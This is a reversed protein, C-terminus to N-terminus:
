LYCHNNQPHLSPLTARDPLIVTELNSCNMFAYEDIKEIITGSEFSITQVFNNGLFAQNLASVSSPIMVNKMNPSVWIMETKDSNYLIGDSYQFSENEEDITFDTIGCDAFAGTGIETINKSLELSNLNECGSFARASITSIGNPIEITKLKSCNYFMGTGIRDLQNPINANELNYCYSFIEDGMYTISNPLSICTLNECNAFAYSSVNTVSNPIEIHTLNSCGYFASGGITKVGDGIIVTKLERCHSFAGAGISDVTGSIYISEINSKLFARQGIQTMGEPIVLHKIGQIGYSITYQKDYITLPLEVVTKNGCYEFLQYSGSSYIFRFGDATDVIVVENDDLYQISGDSNTIKKANYAVQGYESSGITLMLGSHNEIFFLNNCGSFAYEGITTIANPITISKLNECSSFASTGIYTVGDPIIIHELSQCGSFASPQITNLTDPLSIGRLYIYGNLAGWEISTISEDLILHGSIGSGLSYQSLAHKVTGNYDYFMIKNTLEFKATVLYNDEIAGQYGFAAHYIATVSHPFNIQEIYRLNNFANQGIFSIGESITVTKLSEPVYTSNAEYAGAGFIYGFWTIDYDEFSAGIFPLTIEELQNCDAFAGIGIILQEKNAEPVTVSTLKAGRFAYNGIDILTDPLSMSEFSTYAFAYDYIGMVASSESFPFTELASCGYFAYDSIEVISDPLVINKLNICGYFAGEYIGKLNNGEAFTVTTLNKCMAFAYFDFSVVTKPVNLEVIAANYFCRYGFTLINSDPHFNIKTLKSNEFAGYGLIELSQPLTIEGTRGAPVAILKRGDKSYLLGDIAQYKPHTASVKFETLNQLGVLSYEGIYTLTDPITIESLGTNYFVNSMLQLEGSGFTVSALQECDRFANHNILTLSDPLTVSTLKTDMFVGESLETLTAESFDVSTLGSDSFAYRGLTQLSAPIKISQLKETNCFAYQEINQIQSDAGFNVAEIPTTLFAYQGIFTVSDPISINKLKSFAFAYRHIEKLTAPLMISEIDTGNFAYGGISVIEGGFDIATLDLTTATGRYEIISVKGSNLVAYSWDGDDVVDQVGVYYGRIGNDWNQTLNAPLSDAAFYLNLNEAFYFANEGIYDISAPINLRELSKCGYFAYRGIYDVGEPIPLTTLSECYRFAYNDINTLKADGFDVSQLNTMGEFGHAQISTLKSGNEFTINRLNDCGLLMYASISELKSNESFTISSLHDCGVFAYQAITSVSAPVRFDYIGMYAFAAYSIRPLTANASFNISHLNYDYAFAYNSIQYVKDPISISYGLNSNYAFAYAEIYTLTEPLTYSQMNCCDYFGYEGVTILGDPLLVSTLKHSGYFAANGIETVTSEITYTTRANGAPYALIVTKDPNYVVGDIDIYSTNADDVFINALSHCAAFAGTGLYSVSAPISVELLGSNQFAYDGIQRLHTPLTISNLAATNKFAESGIIQLSSGEAFTVSELAYTDGFAGDGISVLSAPFTIQKLGSKYFALRAIQTLQSNEAFTLFQLAINQEFASAEVTKINAPILVNNLMSCRSFAWKPISILGNGFTVTKLRFSNAFAGDDLFTVSDPIVVSELASYTFANEGISQVGSLEIQTLRTYAFACNGISTVGAPITYTGRLGAPYAVIASKTYNFLVGDVSAFSTNGAQVTIATLSTDGLFASGDISTVSAPLEFRKLSSCYSFAGSGVTKLNSDVGFAVSSLRVCNTFANDEIETVENPIAISVLNNCNGFASLGIHTLGVPLNVTRLRSQNQFAFDGISSVTKGDITDPITIYRRKGTYSRIEITGDDLEVYTYPVGDDENVWSAYLTLDASFEDAYLNLPETCDIDYYWGDFVAYTREPEPINQLTHNRVFLQETNDLEDTLMNFTVKGREEQVLAGIDLAGYGYYWDCGLDGLDYTSAYLNETVSEFTAYQHQSLYLAIGGVATPCALSTGDMSGYGGGMKTTYTTGPAVVNVNEGYNSYAALEWADSELAGVGIVNEDAAPYCLSTTADNGAAAVCIIDSDVALKAAAEFPNNGYTGFSMNVVDVDREIAYYLGFVLDSTRYFNGYADCEAKIVLISVEPAIGVVGEGNNMTAAIVGAVGTGHGQEDEVLSWDYSGDDLTYDKVIKDETANYSYESIKGAFESHDTDIGTDIVAVTIGSGKTTNWTSGINLYDLYTQSSYGIDNVTYQPRTPQHFGSEASEEEGETLDSTKALFDPSMVQLYERNERQSYVDIISVTEPLTLRAFRGNATIRLSAGLRDALQQAESHTTNSLVISREDYEGKRQLLMELAENQMEDLKVQEQYNCILITGAVLIACLVLSLLITGLTKLSFRNRTEM